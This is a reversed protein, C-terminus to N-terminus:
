PGHLNWAHKPDAPARTLPWLPTVPYWAHVEIGRAHAKEILYQLADFSPSWEADEVLPEITKLFYSGGRNRVEMIIVNGKATVVDDVMQDIQAAHKYGPHFADEWFARYQQGSVSAALLLVAALLRM